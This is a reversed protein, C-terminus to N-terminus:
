DSRRERRRDRREIAVGAPVDQGRGHRFARRSAARGILLGLVAGVVDALWDGANPVRGPLWRQHVEDLGACVAISILALGFATAGNRGSVRLARGVLWGLVGYLAAHLAKDLWAPPIRPAVDIVPVSTAVLIIIAWIAVWNWSGSHPRM